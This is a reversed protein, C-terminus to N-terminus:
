KEVQIKDTYRKLVKKLKAEDPVSNPKGASQYKDFAKSIRWEMFKNAFKFKSKKLALVEHNPLRALFQEDVNITEIIKAEQDSKYFDVGHFSQFEASKFNRPELVYLYGPVIKETLIITTFVYDQFDPIILSGVTFGTYKLAKSLAYDISTTGFVTGDMPSLSEAIKKRSGHYIKNM